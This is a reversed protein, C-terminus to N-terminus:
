GPLTLTILPSSVAPKLNQFSFQSNIVSLSIKPICFRRRRCLLFLPACSCYKESILGAIVNDMGYMANPTINANFVNLNVSAVAVVQKQLIRTVVLQIHRNLLYAHQM